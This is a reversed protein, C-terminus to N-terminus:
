ENYDTKNIDLHKSTCGHSFEIEKQTPDNFVVYDYKLVTNSGIHYRVDGTDKHKYKSARHIDIDWASDHEELVIHRTETGIRAWKDGRYWPKEFWNQISDILGM